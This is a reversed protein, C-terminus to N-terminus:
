FGGKPISRLFSLNAYRSVLIHNKELVNRPHFLPFSVTNNTLCACIHGSITWNILLASSKFFIKFKLATSFKTQLSFHDRMFPNNKALHSPHLIHSDHCHLFLHLVEAVYTLLIEELSSFVILHKMKVYIDRVKIFYPFYISRRIFLITCYINFFRPLYM